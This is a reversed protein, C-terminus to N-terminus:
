ACQALRAGRRDQERFRKRLLHWGMPEIHFIGTCGKSLNERKKRWLGDRMSRANVVTGDNRWLCYDALSAGNSWENDNLVVIFRRTTGSINNLAELTPGCTFAADGAVAVVRKILAADPDYGALRLAAPPHFV